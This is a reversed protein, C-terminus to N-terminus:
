RARSRRPRDVAGTTTTHRATSQHRFHGGLMGGIASGVAASAAAQRRRGAGAGSPGAAPRAAAGTQMRKQLMEYASEPDIAQDYKGKLPSKAIM